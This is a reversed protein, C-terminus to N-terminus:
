SIFFHVKAACTKMEDATKRPGFLGSFQLRIDVHHLSIMYKCENGGPRDGNLSWKEVFIWIDM